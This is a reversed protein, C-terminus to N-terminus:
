ILNASWLEQRHLNSSRVVTQISPAISAWPRLMELSSDILLHVSEDDVKDNRWLPASTHMSLDHYLQHQISILLVKVVQTVMIHLMYDGSVPPSSEHRQRAVEFRVTEWLRGLTIAHAVAQKQAKITFEKPLKRLFDPNAQERLGPMTFRYLDIHLQSIWSHVMIFGNKNPTRVHATINNETLRLWNPLSATFRVLEQQLKNVDEM